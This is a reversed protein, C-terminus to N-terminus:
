SKFIRDYLSQKFSGTKIFKFLMEEDYDGRHYMDVDQQKREVRTGIKFKKQWQSLSLPKEVKVTSKIKLTTENM